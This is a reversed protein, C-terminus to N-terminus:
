PTLTTLHDLALTLANNHAKDHSLLGLGELKKVLARYSRRAYGAAILEAQGFHGSLHDLAHQVMAREEGTLWALPDALGQGAEGADVDGGPILDALQAIDADSVFAAQLEHLRGDGLAALFRGSKRPLREAGGQGLIVRSHEPTTVRFALRGALNGKVLTGLVDYRPNQDSLILHLGFSRGLRVLTKLHRYLDSRQGGADDILEGCEDVIALLRPQAEGSVQNYADLDAIRRGRAIALQAFDRQRQEIEGALYALTDTASDADVAAAYPCHPLKDLFALDVGKPDILFVQLVQPRNLRALSLVASLLWNTKGSGTEGGVLYHGRLQEWTPGGPGVGLPLTYPTGPWTPFIDAFTVRDPLKAKGTSTSDFCIGFTVGTHNAKKVPFHLVASLHHLTDRDILKDARVGPPLRRTDIEVLLVAGSEHLLRRRVVVPYVAGGKGKHCLGLDVLGKILLDTLEDIEREDIPLTRM